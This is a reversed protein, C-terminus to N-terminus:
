LKLLRYNVETVEVNITKGNFVLQSCNKEAISMANEFKKYDLDEQEWASNPIENKNEFVMKYISLQMANGYKKIIEFASERDVTSMKFSYNGSTIFIACLTYNWPLASVIAYRTVKPLKFLNEYESPIDLMTSWHWSLEKKENDGLFVESVGERNECHAYVIKCTAIKDNISVKATDKPYSVSIIRALEKAQSTTGIFNIFNNQM